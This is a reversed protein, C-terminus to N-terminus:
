ISIVSMLFVQLGKCYRPKTFDVLRCSTEKSAIKKLM